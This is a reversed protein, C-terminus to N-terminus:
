SAAQGFHQALLALDLGNVQGDGNFDCTANWRPSAPSGPYLFNPGYSGFAAAAIAIDKGDVKGDGNLDWVPGSAKALPANFALMSVGLVVVTLIIGSVAKKALKERRGFFELCKRVYYAKLLL